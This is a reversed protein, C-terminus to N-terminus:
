VVESTARRVSSTEDWDIEYSKMLVVSVVVWLILLWVVDILFVVVSWVMVEILVLWGLFDVAASVAFVKKYLLFLWLVMVDGFVFLGDEFM